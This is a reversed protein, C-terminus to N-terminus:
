GERAAKLYEAKQKEDTVAEAWHLYLWRLHDAFIKSANDRREEILRAHDFEDLFREFAAARHRMRHGSDITALGSAAASKRAAPDALLRDLTAVLGDMDDHDYLFLDHGDTFIDTLGHGVHPTVLCAGCGPAEFVRFNLDGRWSENLVIKAKSYLDFYKGRKITLPVRKKLETLLKHRKPTVEPDVKGVFLVDWETETDLPRDTDRAYPPSWLIRERPLRLEFKRIHDKLSVLCLDFAQAYAPLWSHIHTDVAYLVTLCPYRHVGSLSPPTSNDGFVLVDPEFGALNVIKEWTLIRPQFFKYLGIERREIDPAFFGAGLWLIRAM